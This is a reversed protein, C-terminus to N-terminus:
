PFNRFDFDFVSEFIYLDAHFWAVFMICRACFVCQLDTRLSESFLSIFEPFHVFSNKWGFGLLWRGLMSALQVVLLSDMALPNQENKEFNAPAKFYFDILNLFKMQDVGHLALVFVLSAKLRIGTVTESTNTLSFLSLRLFTAPGPLTRGPKRLSTAIMIAFGRACAM